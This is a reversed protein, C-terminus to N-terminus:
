QIIECQICLGMIRDSSSKSIFDFIYLESRTKNQNMNQLRLIDQKICLGMEKCEANNPSTIKIM